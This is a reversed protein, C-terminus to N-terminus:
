AFTTWLQIIKVQNLNGIVVPEDPRPIVAIKDFIFRARVPRHIGFAVIINTQRRSALPRIAEFFYDRRKLGDLLARRHDLHHCCESIEKLKAINFSPISLINDNRRILSVTKFIQLHQSLAVLRANRCSKGNVIMLKELAFNPGSIDATKASL